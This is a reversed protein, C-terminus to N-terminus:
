VEQGSSTKEAPLPIGPDCADFEANYTRMALARQAWIRVCFEGGATLDRFRAVWVQRGRANRGRTLKGLAVRHRHLPSQADRVERGVANMAEESAEDHNMGGYLSSDSCGALLAGAALVLFAWSRLM